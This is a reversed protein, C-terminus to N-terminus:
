RYQVGRNRVAGAARWDSEEPSPKPPPPEDSDRKGIKLRAETVLEKAREVSDRIAARTAEIRIPPEDKDGSGM